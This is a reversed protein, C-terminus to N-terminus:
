QEEVKEPSPFLSQPAHRDLKKEAIKLRGTLAIISCSIDKIEERVEEVASFRRKKSEKTEIGTRRLAGAINGPTVKFELAHTIVEALHGITQDAKGEKGYREKLADMVQVAQYSTLRNM